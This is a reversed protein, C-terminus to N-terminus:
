GEDHGFRASGIQERTARHGERHTVASFQDIPRMVPNAEAGRYPHGSSAHSGGQSRTTLHALPPHDPDDEPQHPRFAV